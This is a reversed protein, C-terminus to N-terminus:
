YAIEVTVRALSPDTMHDLLYSALDARSISWCGPLKAEEATRWTGKPKGNTLRAARVLTWDIASQRLLREMLLMDAYPRHLLPHLVFRAVLWETLREPGPLALSSTSVVLLRGTGAQEMATLINGLGASYVTTAHRHYGIGLASLVAEAGAVVPDAAGPVTVDGAVISLRPHRIRVAEPRRALAVVHHGRRLAQSTLQVGTGGTAGFIALRM